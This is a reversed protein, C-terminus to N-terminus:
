NSKTQKANPNLKRGSLEKKANVWTSLALVEMDYIGGSLVAFGVTWSGFRGLVAAALRCRCCVSFVASLTSFGNLYLVHQLYYIVKEISSIMSTKLSTM